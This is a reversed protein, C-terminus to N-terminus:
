KCITLYNYILDVLNIEIMATSKDDVTGGHEKIFNEWEKQLVPTSLRTKGLVFSAGNSVFRQPQPLLRNDGAHGKQCICVLLLCVFM